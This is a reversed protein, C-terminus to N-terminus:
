QELTQAPLTQTNQWPAAYGLISLLGFKVKSSTLHPHAVDKGEWVLHFHPKFFFTMHKQAPLM